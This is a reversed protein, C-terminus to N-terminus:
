EVEKSFTEVGYGRANDPGSPQPAPRPVFSQRSTDPSPYPSRLGARSVRNSTSHRTMALTGVPFVGTAFIKPEPHVPISETFQGPRRCHALGGNPWDGVYHMPVCTGKSRRDLAGRCPFCDPLSFPLLSGIGEFSCPVPFLPFIRYKTKALTAKGNACCNMLRMLL